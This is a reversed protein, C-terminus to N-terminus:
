NFGHALRTHGTQLNSYISERLPTKLGLRRKEAGREHKRGRRPVQEPGSQTM